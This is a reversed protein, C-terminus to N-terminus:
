IMTGLLKLKLELDIKVEFSNKPYHYQTTSVSLKPRCVRVSICESAEFNDLTDTDVENEIFFLSFTSSPRSKILFEQSNFM